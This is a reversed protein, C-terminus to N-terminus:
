TSRPGTKKGFHEIYADSGPFFTSVHGDDSWRVVFPPRGDEGHVELIEGDRVVDGVRHQRIVIRDGVSARLGGTVHANTNMPGGKPRECGPDVPDRPRVDPFFVSGHASSEWSASNERGARLGPAGDGSRVASFYAALDAADRIIVRAHRRIM